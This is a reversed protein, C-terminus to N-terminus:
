CSLLRFMLRFNRWWHYCSKEFYKKKFNKFNKKLDDYAIASDDGRPDAAGEFSGDSRILIDDVKEISSRVKVKHGMSNLESIVKRRYCSTGHLNSRAEVPSSVAETM